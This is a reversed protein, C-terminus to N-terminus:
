AIASEYFQRTLQLVPFFRSMRKNEDDIAGFVAGTDVRSTFKLFRDEVVLM